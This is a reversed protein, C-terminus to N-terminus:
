VPLEITAIMGKDKTSDISFVGELAKVRTEINRLGIGSNENIDESLGKGFDEIMLMVTDSHKILQINIGSTGSHKISNNVLEQGIRYLSLELPKDLRIKGLTSYFDVKIKNSHNIKNVLDLFADELGFDELVRPMLDHSIRRIDESVEVIQHIVRDLYASEPTDLKTKLDDLAIRIISLTPGIGDHIEKSIRKRESEQGLLMSNIANLEIEKINSIDQVTIIMGDQLTRGRITLYKDVFAVELLDFDQMLGGEIKLRETEFDPIIDLLETIKCSVLQNSTKELDFFELALDNISTIRGNNDITVIGYPVREFVSSLFEKSEIISTM